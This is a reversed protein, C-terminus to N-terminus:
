IIKFARKLFGTQFKPYFTAKLVLCIGKIYSGKKLLFLGNNGEDLQIFSNNVIKLKSSLPINFEEFYQIVKKRLAYDFQYTYEILNINKNVKAIVSNSHSRFYNLHSKSYAIKGNTLMKIWTFWDGNTKLSEDAGGIKNFISKRFLVASANPIVNKYILYKDIFDDGNMIFDNDFLPDNFSDTFDIWSGIIDDTENIRNSQCFSLVVNTDNILPKLLTSIFAPDAIDDSEAIWVYESSALLLGKNWQIFTNGSNKKSKSFSIRPDKTIFDDIIKISSDCSNDDLIICELNTHTQNLISNIRKVLFKDHNYNPVIVSVKISSDLHNNVM